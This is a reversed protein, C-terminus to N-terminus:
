KLCKAFWKMSNTRNGINEIIYEQMKEVKSFDPNLICEAAELPTHYIHATEENATDMCGNRPNDNCIIVCGQMAAEVHPNYFGELKSCCIFVDISRYLENLKERSPNRLYKGFVKNKCKESGFGVCEVSSGLINVIKKFQRWGKRPKTSYQTGVVINKGEQPNPLCDKYDIDQGSLCLTSKIHKSSLFDVQWKSNCLIKGKSKRTFKELMRLCKHEPKQWTEFPRAWYALRMSKYKMVHKVDSISVAILIDTNKPVSHIPKPHKDWSYGDKHAVISVNHGLERLTQASRIVTRTGGTPSLQSWRKDDAYFCINM